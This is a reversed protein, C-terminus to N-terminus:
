QVGPSGAATSYTGLVEGDIVDDLDEIAQKVPLVELDPGVTWPLITGGRKLCDIVNGKNSQPTLKLIM